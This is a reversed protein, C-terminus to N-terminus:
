KMAYAHWGYGVGPYVPYASSGVTFSDTTVSHIGYLGGSHADEISGGTAALGRGDNINFLYMVGGTLGEGLLKRSMLMSFMINMTGGAQGPNIMHPHIFIIDPVVGLEHAVTHSANETTFTGNTSIWEIGDGAVISSIQAPFEAPKMTDTSGTKARIANAIDQFLAGLVNAM